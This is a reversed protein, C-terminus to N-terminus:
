ECAKMRHGKLCDNQYHACTTRSYFTGYNFSFLSHVNLTSMLVLLHKTKTNHCSDCILQNYFM